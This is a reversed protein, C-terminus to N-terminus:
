LSHKQYATRRHTGLIQEESLGKADWISDARRIARAAFFQALMERIEALEEDNVNKSYLHLLELQVNSFPQQISIEM